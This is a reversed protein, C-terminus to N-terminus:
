EEIKDIRYGVGQETKIFGKMEECTELKRRLNAVYIRVYHTQENAFAGWINTLIFNQTLIKGEWSILLKLLDFETATLKIEKGQVRVKRLNVDVELPGNKYLPTDKLNAGHRLAVRVRAGLEAVSFPKTLFDDAGLDLIEIKDKDSNLVTLVIVPTAHEKRIAKLVEGGFMDPLNLDLLVLDPHKSKFLQLARRGNEALFVEYGQNQLSNELFRRIGKEDDVVLIKAGQNLM